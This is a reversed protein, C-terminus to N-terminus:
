LMSGLNFSKTKPQDPELLFEDDVDKDIESLISNTFLARLGGMM